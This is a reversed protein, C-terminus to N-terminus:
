ESDPPTNKKKKIIIRLRTNKEKRGTGEQACSKSSLPASISCTSKYPIRGSSRAMLQRFTGTTCFKKLLPALSPGVVHFMADPFGSMM